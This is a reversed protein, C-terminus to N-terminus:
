DRLFNMAVRHTNDVIYKKFFPIAEPLTSSMCLKYAAEHEDYDGITMIKLYEIIDIPIQMSTGYIFDISEHCIHELYARIQKKLNTAYREKLFPVIDIAALLTPSSNFFTDVFIETDDEQSYILYLASNISVIDDISVEFHDVTFMTSVKKTCSYTSGGAFIDVYSEINTDILKTISTKIDELSEFVNSM